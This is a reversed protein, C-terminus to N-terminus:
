CPRERQMLQRDPVVLGKRPARQSGRRCCCQDFAGRSEGEVHGGAMTVWSCHTHQQFRRRSTGLLSCTNEALEWQLRAM